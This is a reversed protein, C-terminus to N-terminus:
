GFSRDPGLSADRDPEGRDCKVAREAVPSPSLWPSGPLVFGSNGCLHCDVGGRFELPHPCPIRLGTDTMMPGERAHAIRRSDGGRGGFLLQLGLEQLEVALV